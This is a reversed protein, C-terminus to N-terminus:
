DLNRELPHYSCDEVHKARMEEIKVQNRGLGDLSPGEASPNLEVAEIGDVEDLDEYDMLDLEEEFSLEYFTGRDINQNVNSM